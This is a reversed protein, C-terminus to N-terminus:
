NKQKAIGDKVLIDASHTIKINKFSPFITITIDDNEKIINTNNDVHSIIISDKHFTDIGKNTIFDKHKDNIEEFSMGSYLTKTIHELSERAISQITEKSVKIGTNSHSNNCSLRYYIKGYINSEANLSTEILVSSITFNIYYISAIIIIAIVSTAFSFRLVKAANIKDITQYLGDVTKVWIPAFLAIYSFKTIDFKIKTNEQEKKIQRMFSFLKKQNKILSYTKMLEMFQPNFEKKESSDIARFNFHKYHYKKRVHLNIFKILVFTIILMLPISISIFLIIKWTSDLKLSCVSIISNCLLDGLFTIFISIFSVVIIINKYWFKNSLKIYTCNNIFDKKFKRVENINTNM